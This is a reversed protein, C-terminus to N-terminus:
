LQPRSENSRMTSESPADDNGKEAYDTKIKLYKQGLQIRVELDSNKRYDPLLDKEEEEVHHEVLEALVKVRAVWLDEDDTRKIEEILQDALGHEVDGEFAESRLGTLEKMAVYLSEEEPKAHCGILPAFEGFAEEREEISSESDKMVQILKKLSKHDELILQIIDNSTKRDTTSNRKQTTM